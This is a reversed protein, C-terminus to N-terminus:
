GKGKGKAPKGKGRGVSKDGKNRCVRDTFCQNTEPFYRGAMALLYAIRGGAWTPQLRMIGDPAVGLHGGTPFVGVM